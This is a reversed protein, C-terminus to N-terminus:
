QKTKEFGRVEKKKQFKRQFLKIYPIRLLALNKLLKKKLFNLLKKNKKIESLKLTHLSPSIEIYRQLKMRYLIQGTIAIPKFQHPNGLSIIDHPTCFEFFTIATYTAAWTQPHPNGFYPVLRYRLETKCKTFTMPGRPPHPNGFYPVLHYRLEAECKTFTMPDGLLTARPCCGLTSIVNGLIEWTGKHSAGWSNCQILCGQIVSPEEGSTM